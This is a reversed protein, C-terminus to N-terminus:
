GPYESFVAKAFFIIKNIELRENIETTKGEFQVKQHQFNMLRLPRINTAPSMVFPVLVQEFIDDQSIVRMQLNGSGIVRMRVGTFHVINDEESM